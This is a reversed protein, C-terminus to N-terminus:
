VSFVRQEGAGVLATDVPADDGRQDLGALEVGDVRLGVQGGGEGPQDVAVGGALDVVEHGPGLGVVHGSFM